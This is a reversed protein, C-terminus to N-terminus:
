VKEYTSIFKTASEHAWLAANIANENNKLQYYIFGACYADGAGLVNINEITLHLGPVEIYSESNIIITKLKTHYILTKLRYKEIFDFGSSISIKKGILWEAETESIFLYDLYSLQQLTTEIVDTPPNSLCLDASIITSNKRIEKIDFPALTDLYSIHTWKTKKCSPTIADQGCGWSVFSTREKSKLNSLILARSTPLLSKKANTDIKKSEFYKIIKNGDSDNGIVTEALIKLNSGDLAKVINGIGGIATKYSEFTNSTGEKAWTSTCYIDDVIANGLITLDYEDQISM